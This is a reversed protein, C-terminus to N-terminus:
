RRRKAPPAGRGASKRAKGKAAPKSAKAPAAGFFSDIRGQSSKAKGKKIRALANTVRTESFNKEEVLFKLLGERDPPSWTFDFEEGPKIEPNRFLDRAEEYPFLDPIPYKDKDLNALVEELSGHKRMLDIARKPGIGRISDCYDCGLLICLDIFQDMNMDLGALTKSLSVEHIPLKRAESYTIHRLLIDTGFTMADMDESGVAWVKGKKQLESCQAEAECPAEVVPVGLLRLLRKSEENHKRTVKVTRKVLKAVAEDDGTEQAETLQDQAERKKDSRKALEGGKMRPPKGDFVYVPKIGYELFKITRNFLGQLHSTTEGSADTLMFAANDQRIAVLFSYLFMSADIAISRGFYTPVAAEHIADPANDAILRKLGKIGM